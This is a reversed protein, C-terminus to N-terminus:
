RGTKSLLDALSDKTGVQRTKDLASKLAADTVGPPGPEVRAASPSSTSTTGGPKHLPIRPNIVTRPTAPKHHGNGGAKRATLEAQLPKYGFVFQAAMWEPNVYQKMWSNEKLCKQIEKARADEPNKAWPFADHFMARAQTRQAEFATQNQIQEAREPLQRLEAQFKRKQAFLEARSMMQEGVRYQKENPDGSYAQTEFLNEIGDIISQAQHTAKKVEALTKLKGIHEPLADSLSSAQAAPASAAQELEEIRTQQTEITADKDHLKAVLKSIRPIEGPELHQVLELVSKQEAPSLHALAANLDANPNEPTNDESEGEPPPEEGTPPEEPPLNDQGPADSDAPPNPNEPDDQPSPPPPNETVPLPPLEREAVM